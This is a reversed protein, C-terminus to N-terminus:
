EHIFLNLPSSYTEFMMRVTELLDNWWFLCEWVFVNEWRGCQQFNLDTQRIEWLGTPKFYTGRSRVNHADHVTSVFFIFCFSVDSPSRAHDLIFLRVVPGATRSWHHGYAIFSWTVPRAPYYFFRFRSFVRHCACRVIIHYVRTGVRLKLLIGHDNQSKLAKTDRVKDSSFFEFGDTCYIYSAYYLTVVPRRTFLKGVV